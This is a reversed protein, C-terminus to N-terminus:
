IEELPFRSKLGTCGNYASKKRSVLTTRDAEKQEQCFIAIKNIRKQTLPKEFQSCRNEELFSQQVSSKEISLLYCM